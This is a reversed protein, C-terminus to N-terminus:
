APVVSIPNTVGIFRKKSCEPPLLVYGPNIVYDKKESQLYKLEDPTCNVGTKHENTLKDSEPNVKRGYSDTQSQRANEVITASSLLGFRREALTRISIKAVFVSSLQSTTNLAIDKWIGHANFIDFFRVVFNGELQAITYLDNRLKLNILYGPKWIIRMM